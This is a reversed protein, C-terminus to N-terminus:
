QNEDLVYVPKLVSDLVANLRGKFHSAQFVQQYRAYAAAALQQRKELDLLLAALQAAMAQRDERDVLIGTVGHEFIESAASGALGVCALRQMMAELFVLGFGDGTSPMVFLASRQYLRNLQAQGLWGTFIVQKSLQLSAVKKELRARDDGGGAIILRADPVQALILPLAEVLHDHGKHRQEASLRGVILMDHPGMDFGPEDASVQISSEVDKGPPCIRIGPLDPYCARSKSATYESNSILFEANRASRHYDTRQQKWIEIGHIFLIYPARAWRPILSPLRALGVHDLLLLQARATFLSLAFHWRRGGFWRTHPLNSGQFLSDGPEPGADDLVHVCLDIRGATNLELLATVAQRSLEAIGGAGKKISVAAFLIKPRADAAQPDGPEPM